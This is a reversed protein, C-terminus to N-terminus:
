SLKRAMEVVQAAFRSNPLVEFYTMGTDASSDAVDNRILGVRGQRVVLDREKGQMDPYQGVFFTEEQKDSAATVQKFRVETQLKGFAADDIVIGNVNYRAVEQGKEGSHPDDDDFRFAAVNFNGPDFSNRLRWSCSSLRDADGIASSIMIPRSDDFLFLPKQDAYCIGIGIELLPLGTQRSHANKSNVIDLMEKALGCARSVSFWQDPSNNHEYVGLIVADGEIFVKVAGYTALRETIPDFFRLSFYSAPNLERKLLENTVTTSGRVDAKLITHHVIEPENDHERRRVEEASLLQYLHGGARALQIKEPDTIVSLRNFVRHAFRYYKLHLRYRSYDALFKVFLHDESAKILAQFEAACDLLKEETAKVGESSQTILENIKRNDRGSVYGVATEVDIHQLESQTLKEKLVYSALMPRFAKADGFNRRIARLAKQLKKLEGRVRWSTSFGMQGAAELHREHVKPDFLLRLNGPHDLWCFTETVTEKQDESLGLMPQAAFLGGLEDYVEAQVSAQGQAMLPDFPVGSFQQGFAGELVSNLKSFEAGNGPWLAYYDLLLLPDRPTRGFLLPNFLINTVEPFEPLVQTRLNKLHNNEERQFQRLYLRALRYHFEGAHKRYWQIREKTTLLARSGAYQQQGLTEELQRFQNDLANRIEQLVCKVIAFQLVLVQQPELDTKTRHLTTRVLDTYAARVEVMAETNGSLM